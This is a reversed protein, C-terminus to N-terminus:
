WANNIHRVIKGALKRCLPEQTADKADDIFNLQGLSFTMEDNKITNFDYDYDVDSTIIVPGIISKGSRREILTTKVKTRIRNESPVIKNKKNTDARFDINYEETDVIEAKLILDGGGIVYKLAGESSLEKILAETLKGETDNIVYPVTITNYHDVLGGSGTKYGACSFLFLCTVALIGLLKM